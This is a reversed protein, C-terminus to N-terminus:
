FITIKNGVQYKNWMSTIIYEGKLLNINLSAIGENDSVNNYFVGNVNFTVNQNALPKGEGDLTKAQFKSGDLYNMSIGHTILTPLVNVKNEVSLGDYITTITYKGPNLNIDLKVTGNVNSTKNYFVGNIYFTVTKNIALNGDKNYIKVEFNSANRYYKTLDSTEILSKVLVNFGQQEGTVQNYATLTYNGPNLNINLKAIGNTDTTRNYFVGNINFTVTTNALPSGDSDIFTANFQTDNQYMKVIDSAIISSKITVNANVNVATNGFYSITATYNGAGLNIAISASGNGNTTRNYTIGNITFSVTTNAMPNGNDDFLNAILHTGDHYVMVVNDVILNITLKENDVIATIVYSGEPAEYAKTFTGNVIKGTITTNGITLSIDRSLPLVEKTGNKYFNVYVMNNSVTLNLVAHNECVVDGGILSAWIPTNNGWWNNNATFIKTSYIANGYNASNNVFVSNIVTFGDGVNYIAGGAANASNNVFSCDAVVFNAGGNYIAGGWYGMTNNVFASNYIAVDSATVYFVGNCMGNNTIFTKTGNGVITVTKDITIQSNVIHTGDALYITGNVPVISMAKGISQVAKDWSSGDNNDDKNPDVYVSTIYNLKENDVEATLECLGVTRNFIGNVIKDYIVENDGITLKVDRSISLVTNTGNRYFKVYAVGGNATLNLVAYTDHTIKGKVFAGCNPTNNGWWNDNASSSEDSISYIVYDYMEASNGVFSSNSVTFNAYLDNYIASGYWEASNNLFTCADVVLNVANNYIAGGQMTAFNNVFTCGSVTLNVGNNDIVAGIGASNNTFTCNYIAVNDATVYFVRSKDNTTILTKTGNGVITVTKNINVQSALEYTGDALYITGNDLVIEMAHEITKIASDWSAGSNNDDGTPSVYPYKILNLVQTENDASVTIAYNGEPVVYSTNFTGDVTKNYITDQDAITLNFNRSFPLVTNTGNRYFNVHAVGDNATLSLVAYTDHTIDGWLNSILKDWIPTSNGWWNDNAIGYDCSYIADGERNVCTKGNGIANNNVFSSNSVSFGSGHNYIAGGFDFATNVVFSSKSVNFSGDKNFIAGGYEATNNVFTCNVVFGYGWNNIAGGYGLGGPESSSSNLFAASNNVFTCDSAAFNCDDGNHIAGGSAFLGKVYNNVFTCGSVIVGSSYIAGGYGGMAAIGVNYVFTCNSATVGNNAYIAGGYGCANSTVINNVFTCNSATVSNAYIAGGCGDDYRVFLTATNNVFTCGDVIVGDAYIAGGKLATNNAFFSNCVTFSAVYNRIAGASNNAVNYIFNSKSVTFGTGVNSIAAGDQGAKNNAFRSNVVSFNVGSNFIAGGDQGASNNIFTTNYVSVLKGANYIASGNDTINANILILNKLIVNTGDVNFIRVSKDGANANITHGQGDITFNNKNITIGTFNGNGNYVYDSELYLISNDSKDDIEKELDTFTKVDNADKIVDGNISSQLKGDNEEINVAGLANGRSVSESTNSVDTLESMGLVVADSDIALGDTSNSSVDETASAVSISLLAIVLMIFIFFKNKFM